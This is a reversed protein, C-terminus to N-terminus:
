SSSIYLLCSAFMVCELEVEPTSCTLLRIAIYICMCIVLPIYSFILLISCHMAYWESTVSYMQSYALWADCSVEGHVLFPDCVHM